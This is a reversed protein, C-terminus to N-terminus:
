KTEEQPALYVQISRSLYNNFALPKQYLEWVKELTQHAIIKGDQIKAVVVCSFTIKFLKALAENKQFNLTKFEIKGDAIEKTFKNNLLEKTMKEINNCTACRLTGHMYYVRILSTKRMDVGLSKKEASHKGITFGISILVFAILVNKFIKM